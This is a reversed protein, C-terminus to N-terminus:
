HMLCTWQPCWPHYISSPPNCLVTVGLVQVRFSGSNLEQCDCFGLTLAHSFYFMQNFNHRSIYCIHQEIFKSSYFLIFAVIHSSLPVHWCGCQQSLQPWFVCWSLSTSLYTVSNINSITMLFWTLVYKGLIVCIGSQKCEICM